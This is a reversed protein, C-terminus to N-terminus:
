QFNNLLFLSSYKHNLYLITINQIILKKTIKSCIKM